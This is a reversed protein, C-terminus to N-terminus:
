GLSALDQPQGPVVVGPSFDFSYDIVRRGLVPAAHNNRPSSVNERFALAILVVWECAENLTVLRLPIIPYPLLGRVGSVVVKVRCSGYVM